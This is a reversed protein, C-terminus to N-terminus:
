SSRQTGEPPPVVPRPAVPVAVGQLDAGGCDQDAHEDGGPGPPGDAPAAWVGSSDCFGPRHEAPLRSRQGTIRPPNYSTPTSASSHGPDAHECVDSRPLDE